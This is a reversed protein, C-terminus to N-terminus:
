ERPPDDHRMEVYMTEGDTGNYLGLGYEEADEPVQTVYGDRQWGNSGDYVLVLYKKNETTGQPAEPGTQPAEPGTQPAEPGTQAPAQQGEDLMGAIKTLEDL